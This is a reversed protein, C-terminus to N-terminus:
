SMMQKQNEEYAYANPDLKKGLGKIAGESKSWAGGVVASSVGVSGLLAKRNAMVNGFEDRMINGAKDKALMMNGLRNSWSNKSKSLTHAFNGIEKQGIAGFSMAKNAGGLLTRGPHSALTKFGKAISGVNLMSYQRQQENIGSSIPQPQQDQQPSGSIKKQRNEIFRTTGYQIAPIASFALGFTVSKKNHKWTEKGLNKASKWAEGWNFSYARQQPTSQQLTDNFGQRRRDAQIIKNTAYGGLGAATGMVVNGLLVQRRSADGAGQVLKGGVVKDGKSNVFNLIDKGFGRANELWKSNALSKLLGGTAAYYKERTGQLAEPISAAAKPNSKVRESIMSLKRNQEKLLEEQKENAEEQAKGQKQIEENQKQGQLYSVGTGVGMLAMNWFFNKQRFQAM